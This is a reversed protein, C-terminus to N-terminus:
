NLDTTFSFQGAGAGLDGLVTAGFADNVIKKHRLDAEHTSEVTEFDNERMYTLLDILVASM